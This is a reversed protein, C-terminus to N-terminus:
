KGNNEEEFGRESVRREVCERRELEQECGKQETRTDVSNQVQFLIELQLIEHQVRREQLGKEVIFVFVILRSEDNIDVSPLYISTVM